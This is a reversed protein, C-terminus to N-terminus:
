RTRSIYFIKWIGSERVLRYHLTEAGERRIEVLAQDEDVRVRIRDHSLKEPAPHEQSATKRTLSDLIQKRYEKGLLSWLVEFEQSSMERHLINRALSERFGERFAIRRELRRRNGEAIGVLFDFVADHTAPDQGKEARELWDSEIPVFLVSDVGAEGSGFGLVRGTEDLWYTFLRQRTGDPGLSSEEVRLGQIPRNGLLCTEFQGVVMEVREIKGSDQLMLFATRSGPVPDLYRVLVMSLDFGVVEGRYPTWQEKVSTTRLRWRDGELRLLLVNRIEEEGLIAERRYLTPRLRHDLSYDFAMEVTHFRSRARLRWEKRRAADERAMSFRFFGLYQGNRYTAYVGDLVTGSALRSFRDLVSQGKRLAEDSAGAGSLVVLLATFWFKTYSMM